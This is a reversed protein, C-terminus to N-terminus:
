YVTILNNKNVWPHNALEGSVVVIHKDPDMGWDRINLTANYDRNITKGCNPCIWQKEHKLDHNIYGCYHCTKSTDTPDVLILTQGAKQYADILINLFTNPRVVNNLKNNINKRMKTPIKGKKYRSIRLGMAHLREMVLVPYRKILLPAVIQRYWDVMINKKKADCRQKLHKAVKLQYNDDHQHKKIYKQLQRGQKDVAKYRARVTPDWKILFGDSFCFFEDNKSNIDGGVANDFQDKTTDKIVVKQITVQLVYSGSKRQKVQAEVIKQGELNKMSQKIHLLKFYPVKIHHDDVLKVSQGSNAKFLITKFHSYDHQYSLRGYGSLTCNHNALYRKVNAKSWHQVKIQKKRYENFNRIVTECFLDTSQRDFFIEKGLKKNLIHHIRTIFVYFRMSKGGTKIGLMPLIVNLNNIGYHRYLYQLVINYIQKYDIQAVAFKNEFEPTVNTIIYKYTSKKKTIPKIKNYVKM